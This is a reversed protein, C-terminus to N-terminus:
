KITLTNDKLTVNVKGMGNLLRVVHEIGGRKDALFHLHYNRVDNNAFVVNLNYWRGIDQMINELAVNDFYFYGDRWYLYSDIDVDAIGLSGDDNLQADQGPTLVAEHSADTRVAVKGKILTVHTDANGYSRVNFETGLVKAEFGNAEVIFPHKADPAVKFYAEGEVKVRREKGTFYNPYVLRCDNNMWVESGDSLTIKYTQGRPITLTLRDPTDAANATLTMEKAKVNVGVTALVSKDANGGLEIEEGDSMTLVPHAPTKAVAELVTGEAPRQKFFGLSFTAVLIIIVAAAAAIYYYLTRPRHTKAAFKNWEDDIDIGSQSSRSLTARKVDLLDSFAEVVDEDSMMRAIEEDSLACGNDMLEVADEIPKDYSDIKEKEM